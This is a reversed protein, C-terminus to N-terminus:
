FYGLASLLHMTFQGQDHDDSSNDNDEAERSRKQPTTCGSLDVSQGEQEVAEADEDEDLLEDDDDLLGAASSGPLKISENGGSEARSETAQPVNSSPGVEANRQDLQSDNVEEEPNQDDVVEAEASSRQDYVGQVDQYYQEEETYEETQGDAFNEIYPENDASDVEYASEDYNEDELYEEGRQSDDDTGEFM